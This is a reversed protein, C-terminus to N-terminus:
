PWASEKRGPVQVGIKARSREGRLRAISGLPAISAFGLFGIVM